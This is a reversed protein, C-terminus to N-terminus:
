HLRIGRPSSAPEGAETFWAAIAPFALHGFEIMQVTLQGGQRAVFYRATTRGKRTGEASLYYWEVNAVIRDTGTTRTKTVSARLYSIGAERLGDYKLRFFHEVQARTSLVVYGPDVDPLAVVLPVSYVRAVSDIRGERLHLAQAVFLQQVTSAM